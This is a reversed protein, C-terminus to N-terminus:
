GWYYVRNTSKIFSKNDPPLKRLAGLNAVYGQPLYESVEMYDNNRQAVIHEILHDDHMRRVPISTADRQNQICKPTKERMRRREERDCQNKYKQIETIRRRQKNEFARKSLDYRSSYEENNDERKQIRSTQPVRQQSTIRIADCLELDDLKMPRRIFDAVQPSWNRASLVKRKKSLHQM